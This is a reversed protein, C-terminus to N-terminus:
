NMKAWHDMETGRSFKCSLFSGELKTTTNENNVKLM